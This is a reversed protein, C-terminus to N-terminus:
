GVARQFMWVLALMSVAGSGGYVVGVRYFRTKRLWWALPVFVCVISLQGLEVGLNFGLVTRWFGGAGAPESFVNAFGFGHLFGFLLATWIGATGATRPLLNQLAAIAVSLAIGSEVWRAPLTVRGSAALSLTISHTLTFATVILTVRWFTGSFREVPVRGRGKRQLVCPILLAILFLIHDYGTFIHWMGGRVHDILRTARAQTALLTASAHGADLVRRESRLDPWVIEVSRPHASLDVTGASCDIAIQKLSKQGRMALEAAIQPVKGSNGWAMSTVRPVAVLGDLTFRCDDILAQRIQDSRPQLEAWVVKGNGDADLQLRRDLESVSVHLEGTVGGGEHVTLVLRDDVVPAAWVTLSLFPALVGLWRALRLAKNANM